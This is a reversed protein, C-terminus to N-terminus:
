KITTFDTSVADGQTNFAFYLAPLYHGVEDLANLDVARVRALDLTELLVQQLSFTTWPQELEPPVAILISQPPAANPQDYQLALGTIETAGPVVEVWEDILLGALPQSVDVPTTSQVAISIKGGPLSKGAELPLAVWREDEVHPLQAITLKLKEGTKLAEAYEFATKFRGVSERVRAMQRLWAFSVLPDGNLLKDNNALAKELEAANAANFQPVVIFSKGFVIQLQQSAHDRDGEATRTSENFRVSLADLKEVREVIEKQISGAQTLLTERDLPSDGAFSLPVAGAVGFRSARIILSRLAELDATEPQASLEVVTQRLAEVAVTARKSLEEVDVSFDTTQDPASLDHADIARVGNLLKRTARLSESFQGYSLDAAPWEPKRNPSVRLLSNPAFSRSIAFLIRQEIEGQQGGPGGEAAYIYDLPALQLESLKIEKTEVVSLTTSDLREVLCRVNAPNAIMKAAWANLRPEANARFSNETAPWGTPLEPNSSLLTVIRHTLAIGSRPTRVIELEPPPTEGGAISEVTTSARLPNGRVVQYISEAMLADSVSDVSEELLTLENQLAAFDPNSEVFPPFAIRQQGITKGFPITDKDWIPPNTSKGKQWRRLLALGDVVNNAGIAEVSLSTQELKKAVLPALERFPAIFQAKRIEQLRREFRYGLLAGLPQGARVGDLLWMALRVRESSLDIALLDNPSQNGAHALHGSRLVAVTSAQALSPTHIFGPNNPNQFVPGDEGAPTAVPALPDAPKLNMVWGYGGYLVGNPDRQRMDALRKTAFSTIWADLRHSCLDLTSTLLQELKAVNIHPSKLYNLSARFESLPKLVPAIALDPEGSGNPGFLLKIIPIPQANPVAIQSKMQDWITQTVQGQALNVLEPERRQEIKIIGKSFLLRSAASGYEVLMSHRLLLHFLTHPAPQEFKQGQFWVEKTFERTALLADIFAPSLTTGPGPQVLPGSLTAVPTSYVAKSLRPRWAVQLTQLVKAALREQTEWWAASALRKNEIFTLRRQRAAAAASRQREQEKIIRNREDIRAQFLKRLQAKATKSLEPDLEFDPPEIEPPEEFEPIEPLAPDWVDAFFDASLFVWLHELYHRGMLHRMSYSSSSGEMSLVEPLDTQIGSQQATDATRGLRPVKPYARRWIDRMRILFAALATDRQEDARATFKALSTVPLVGYPQRGVRIAPLPGTARVFDIFHNRAWDIDADQLPNEIPKGIESPKGVGLMQLLFYGWTASWLATNMHRADLQDKDTAHPLPAFSQGFDSLGLATTLKDANSFDSRTITPTKIESLYSIEYGPDNSSFGSPEDATNNSPTGTPIFSLGSTYHHADLLDKLKPAWDTKTDLSDKVGMVLLFDLGAAAAEKTMKVRIGMGAKEATVFDVMWKMGEDLGFKDLKATPSPDPGAALPESIPGGKVHLVLQGNRYGLVLWQNPLARAIPARTWSETKTEVATTAPLNKTAHAIWAARPPDFREALQRWAAKRRDEDTGAASMQEWFHKGWTLEDDTLKPEHSDVHVKDPYIRVCLDTTGDAQQFFRTELRVPFLVLPRAPGFSLRTELDPTKLINPIDPNATIM